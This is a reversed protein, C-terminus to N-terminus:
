WVCFHLQAAEIKASDLGCPLSRPFRSALCLRLASDHCQGQDSDGVPTLEMGEREVCIISM